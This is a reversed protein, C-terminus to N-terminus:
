QRVRAELRAITDALDVAAGWANDAGRAAGLLAASPEPVREPVSRVTYAGPSYAPGLEEWALPAAVLDGALATYPAPTPLRPDLPEIKWGAPGAVTPAALQAIIGGLAKVAAAPWLAGLVVHIRPPAGQGGSLPVGSLGADALVERLRAAAAARVGDPAVLDFVLRDCTGALEVLGDAGDAVAAALDEAARLPTARGDVLADRGGLFTVVRGAMAEYYDLRARRASAGLPRPGWSFEAAEPLGADPAATCAAPSGDERLGLFVPHRLRRDPTWGSFRVRVVLRPEVFVRGRPAREFAGKVLPPAGPAPPARPVAAAVVRDVTREDLGSGVKGRLTLVGEEYSAIDLAGVRRGDRARTYGVVVFDEARDAKVKVWDPSRAGSRYASGLRKAIVGELGRTRCLEFLGVGGGAHFAARQVVGTEPVIEALIRKRAELPLDRVDWPGVALVDFVVYAIPVAVAAAAIDAERGLGIRKGLRAFSPRGLEDFAVVEGDVVVDPAVLEEVARAIEPYSDTASRSTRYHLRVHPGRADAVVRVGDLKLEFVHDADDLHTEPGGTTGCYMPELDRADRARRAAGRTEAM